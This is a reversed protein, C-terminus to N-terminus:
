NVPCTTKQKKAIQEERMKTLTEESCDCAYAFGKKYLEHALKKHKALNKM